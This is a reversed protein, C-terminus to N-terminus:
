SAFARLHDALERETDPLWGAIGQARQRGMTNPKSATAAAFQRAVYVGRDVDGGRLLASALDGLVVVGSDPLEGGLRDVASDATVTLEQSKLEGYVSLALSDMRYPTVFRVWAQESTHNAFDYAFRAKELARHAGAGDGAQAAEEAYRGLAWAAATANGHGRVDQAAQSLMELAGAPSTAGYSAYGLALARLPPHGAEKACESTVRYYAAAKDHEGLDWAVWGALAATEGAAITLAREHEGARPLAATIADLHSEVRNQLSRASESLEDLHLGAAHDILVSASEPDIRAGKNLAYALRGWPEAAATAGVIAGGLLTRRKMDDPDEGERDGRRRRRARAAKAERLISEVPVGCAVAIHGLTHNTPVNEGNEYRSVERRTVTARGSVTNIADAQEDQSREAERRLQRLLEAFPDVPM